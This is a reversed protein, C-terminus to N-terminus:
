GKYQSTLKPQREGPTQFDADHWPRKVGAAAVFLIMKKSSHENKQNIRHREESFFKHHTL